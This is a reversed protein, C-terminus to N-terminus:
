TKFTKQEGVEQGDTCSIHPVVFDVMKKALRCQEWIIQRCPGQGSWGEGKPLRPGQMTAKSLFVDKKKIVKSNKPSWISDCEQKTVKHCEPVMKIHPVM